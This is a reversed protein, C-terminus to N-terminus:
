DGGFLVRNVTFYYIERTAEQRGAPLESETSSLDAGLKLDLKAIKWTLASNIQYRKTTFLGKTWSSTASVFINLNPRPFRKEFGVGGGVTRQTYGISHQEPVEIHEIRSYYGKATFKTTSTINTRANAEARYTKSPNLRSEYDQYEGLLSYNNGDLFVGVTDVTVTDGGGPLSGSVIEQDSRLHSYYPNFFGQFLSLKASYGSNRTEMKFDASILSYTVRFEYNFFPDPSSAEPPVSLIRIRQTNGVQIVSYHIDRAMAVISGTQASKVTVAISAPEINVGLLPFEGFIQANHVENLISAAGTRETTIKGLNVGANLTGYPIKKTYASSFNHSLSTLDGTPSENESYDLLYSTVLSRYLRQTIQMGANQSRTSVSTESADENRRTAMDDDVFRYSFNTEFNWPLDLWLQETWTFRKDDLASVPDVQHFDTESVSTMLRAKKRWGFLTNRFTFDDLTFETSGGTDQSIDSDTHTFSGSFEGWDKVYGGIAALTGSDTTSSKSEITTYDYSLLFTYPRKRYRFIAGSDYIVTEFGGTLQGRIFPNKKLTYVELNYPHEPLGYARIEYEDTFANHWADDASTFFSGETTFKEQHFGIAFRGLFTVFRPHYVYGITTLRFKETFVVDTTELGKGNTTNKIHDYLGGLELEGFNSYIRPTFTGTECFAAPPIALLVFGFALLFRAPRSPRM